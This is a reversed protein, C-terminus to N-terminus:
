NPFKLTLFRSLFRETTEVMIIDPINERIYKKEADAFIFEGGNGYVIRTVYAFTAAMSFFYRGSFSDGVILLHLKNNTNDNIATQFAGFPREQNKVKFGSSKLKLIKNKLNSKSYKPLVMFSNYIDLDIQPQKISDSVSIDYDKLGLVDIDPYDKRIEEMIFKYEYFAGMNNMHTGTKYFLQEKKKIKDLKDKFNLLKIYPYNQKIYNILQELRSVKGSKLIYDPYYEPYLSEKDNSLMFYVNGVGKSQAAKVFNDMNKGITELEKDTFLNVNRYVDVAGYRSSYLWGEKGVMARENAIQDPILYKLYNYLYVIKRRGMFHDNYWKEFLFGYQTNIKHNTHLFRPKSALVRNETTSRTSDSIHIMPFFLMFFFVVLFAMDIRSVPKNVKYEALYQLLKYFLMFSLVALIIVILIDAHVDSKLNLVKKYSIYPDQQNSIITLENNHINHENIQNFRFDNYDLKISKQGKIMLNSITAKQPYNGFDLRFLILKEIPLVFTVNQAGAKVQMRQSQAANFGQGKSDTYFIQYEIDKVNETDFSVTIDGSLWVASSAWLVVLALFGAVFCRIYSKQAIKQLFVTM